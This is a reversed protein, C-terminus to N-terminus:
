DICIQYHRKAQWIAKKNKVSIDGGNTVFYEVETLEPTHCGCSKQEFLRVEYGDKKKEVETPKPNKVLYRGDEDLSHVFFKEPFSYMPFSQTLAMIYSIAEKENKIPAFFSKFEQQNKILRIEEKKGFILTIYQEMQANKCGTIRVGESAKFKKCIGIAVSPDLAGWDSPPSMIDDCKYKRIQPANKCKDEGGYIGLSECLSPLAIIGSSASLLSQKYGARVTGPVLLSLILCFFVIRAYHSM